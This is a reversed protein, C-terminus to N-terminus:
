AANNPIPSMVKDKIYHDEKMNLIDKDTFTKNCWEYGSIPLYQSMAWGYLNNADLYIIYSSEKNKNYSKMYKNNAEAYRQTIMSVGGRLGSEIFLLKSIDGEKFLEIKVDTMKLM